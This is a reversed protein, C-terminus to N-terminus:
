RGQPANQNEEVTAQLGQERTFRFRSVFVLRDFQARMQPTFHGYPGAGRVISQAKRDLLRNGSTQIIEAEVVRGLSDIELLMSLEGYLKVGKDEPFNRTGIDEIRSRLTDYYIAHVGERASPSVYRRRPRANEDNIRKEIQALQDLLQRRREDEARAAPQDQASPRAQDTTALRALERKMQALLQMQQLQMQEIQRQAEDLSDGAQNAPAPPLPSTARGQEADGGGALNRQAIVQAQTPAEASSANVLVVELSTDQLIRDFAEPDVVRLTLLAAHVGLSLLLAIQLNSLQKLRQM